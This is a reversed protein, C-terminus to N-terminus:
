IISPIADTADDDDDDDGRLRTSTRIPFNEPKLPESKITRTDNQLLHLIFNELHSNNQIKIFNIKM